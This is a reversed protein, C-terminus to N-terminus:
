ASMTMSMTVFQATSKLFECDCTKNVTVVSGHTLLFPKLLLLLQATPLSLDKLWIQQSFASAHVPLSISHSLEAIGIHIDKIQHVRTQYCQFSLSLTEQWWCSFMIQMIDTIQAKKHPKFRSSYTHLQRNQGDEWALRRCHYGLGPSVQM